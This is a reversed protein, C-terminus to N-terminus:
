RGLPRCSLGSDQPTKLKGLPVLSNGDKSSFFVTSSLQERPLNMFLHGNSIQPLCVRKIMSFHLYIIKGLSWQLLWSLRPKRQQLLCGWFKLPMIHLLKNRAWQLGMKPWCRHSSQEVNDSLTGPRVRQFNASQRSLPLFLTSFQVPSTVAGAQFHCIDSRNTNWPGSRTACAPFPPSGDGWCPPPIPHSRACSAEVAGLFWLSPWLGKPWHPTNLAPTWLCKRFPWLTFIKLKTAMSDKDWSSM